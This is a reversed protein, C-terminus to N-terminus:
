AGELNVHELYVFRLGDLKNVIWVADVTAEVPASGKKLGLQELRYVIHFEGVEYIQKETRFFLQKGQWEFIGKTKQMRGKTPFYHPFKEKAEEISPPEGAICEDLPIKNITGLMMRDLMERDPPYIRNFEAKQDDNLKGFAKLNFGAKQLDSYQIPKDRAVANSVLFLFAALLSPSAFVYFPNSVRERLGHSCAKRTSFPICDREVDIYFNQASTLLSRM